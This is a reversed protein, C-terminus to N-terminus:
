KGMRSLLFQTFPEAFPRVDDRAIPRRDPPGLTPDMIRSIEASEGRADAIGILRSLRLQIVDFVAPQLWRQVTWLPGSRPRESKQPAATCQICLMIAWQCAYMPRLFARGLKRPLGNRKQISSTAPTPNSGVVELNHTDRCDINKAIFDINRRNAHAL